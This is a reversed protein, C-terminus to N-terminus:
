LPEDARHSDTCPHNTCQLTSRDEANREKRPLTYSTSSSSSKSTRNQHLRSRLRHLLNIFTISYKILLRQQTQQPNFTFPRQTDPHSSDCRKSFQLQSVCSYHTDCRLYVPCISVIPPVTTSCDYNGSRLDQSLFRWFGPCPRASFFSCGQSSIQRRRSRLRIPLLQSTRLHLRNRGCLWM